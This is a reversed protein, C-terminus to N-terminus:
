HRHQNRRIRMGTSDRSLNCALSRGMKGVENKLNVKLKVIM